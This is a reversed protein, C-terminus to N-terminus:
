RVRARVAKAQQALEEVPLRQLKFRLNLSSQEVV